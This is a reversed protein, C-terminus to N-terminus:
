KLISNKLTFKASSLRHQLKWLNTRGTLLMNKLFFEPCYQGCCRFPPAQGRYSEFKCTDEKIGLASSDRLTKWLWALPLTVGTRQPEWHPLIVLLSDSTVRFYQFSAMDFVKWILRVPVICYLHHWGECWFIQTSYMCISLALM